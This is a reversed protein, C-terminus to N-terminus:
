GFDIDKVRLRVCEMLRLGSGYFLESTLQYEGHLHDLIARAEERTFVVPIKAPRKVRAVDDIFDLKRQLVQQYLFLLACFAQNQTSAAVHRDVALPTLFAGIEQEGM